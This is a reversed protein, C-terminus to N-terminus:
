EARLASIPDVAAARINDDIHLQLHSEIERDFDDARRRALFAGALRSMWVRLRRM